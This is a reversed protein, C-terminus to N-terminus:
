STVTCRPKGLDYMLSEKSFHHIARKFYAMCEEEQGKDREFSIVSSSIHAQLSRQKISAMDVACNKM